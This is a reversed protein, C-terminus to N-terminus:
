AKIAQIIFEATLTKREEIFQDYAKTDNEFLVRQMLPRTAFPFICLSLLNIFFHKPTINTINNKIIEKKITEFVLDIRIGSKLLQEFLGDPNRNMENIMFAPIFPNESLLTIYDKVVIRIKEFFDIDSLFTTEIRPLFRFLTDELVTMFLKDKNRFYYHLLAKNIEAKDAIAQMTTGDKGKEIFVAKAAELIKKETNFDEM